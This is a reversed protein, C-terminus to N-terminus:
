ILGGKYKQQIVRNLETTGSPQGRTPSLIQWREAKEWAKDAIGLSRNFAKYPADGDDLELIDVMREHLKQQLEAHDRWFHVELDGGSEGRAVASLFEDDGPDPADRLYGDALKLARSNHDEHRARETLRALCRARDADAELWAIIDVFPRGPGIPPLQNPDGVFILRQVQNLDVARFLAGMLDMPIM